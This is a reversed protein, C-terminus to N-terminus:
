SVHFGSFTVRWHGVKGSDDVSPKSRVPGARVKTAAPECREDRRALARERGEIERTEDSEVLKSLGPMRWM